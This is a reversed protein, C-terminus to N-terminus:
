PKPGGHPASMMAQIVAKPVKSQNLAVLGNATLDFTNKTGSVKTLILDQSVRGQVMRVVIDNTLVESSAAHTEGPKPTMVAKLMARQIEVPVRATTLAILGDATVDFSNKTGQIKALILDKSLKGTVMQVVSENTLVEGADQAWLTGRWAQDALLAAACFVVAGLTRVPYRM